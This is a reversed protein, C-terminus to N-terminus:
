ENRDRMFAVVQFNANLKDSPEIKRTKRNRRGRVPRLDLQTILMIQGSSEIDHLVNRLVEIDGSMRVKVKVQKFGQESSHPLVQTSTLEGGAQSISSKIFKQLDASALSEKDRKSFYNQQQYQQKINAVAESIAPKRAVIKKARQLRFGLEQQQDYYDWSASVVPVIVVFVLIFLLFLLLALALWRQQKAENM